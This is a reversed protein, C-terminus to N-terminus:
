SWCVFLRSSSPSKGSSISPSATTRRKKSRSTTKRWRKSSNRCYIKLVGGNDHTDSPHVSRVKTDVNGALNAEKLEMIRELSLQQVDPADFIEQNNATPGDDSGALAAANSWPGLMDRDILQDRPM